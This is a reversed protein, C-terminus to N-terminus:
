RQHMKPEHNRLTICLQIIRTHYLIANIQRGQHLPELRAPKGLPLNGLPGVTRLGCHRPHHFPLRGIGAKLYDIRQAREIQLGGVHRHDSRGGCCLGGICGLLRPRRSAKVDVMAAGPVTGM